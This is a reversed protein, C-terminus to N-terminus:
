FQLSTQSRGVCMQDMMVGRFGVGCECRFTGPMNICSGTGCIDVSSILCENIDAFLFYTHPIITYKM